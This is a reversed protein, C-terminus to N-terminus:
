NSSASVLDAHLLSETARKMAAGALGCMEGLHATLEGLQQHFVTRV